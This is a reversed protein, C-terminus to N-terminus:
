LGGEWSCPSLGGLTQFTRYLVVKSIESNKVFSKIIGGHIKDKGLFWEKPPSSKAM